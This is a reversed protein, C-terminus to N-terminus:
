LKELVANRVKVTTGEPLAGINLNPAFVTGTYDFDATFEFSFTQFETTLTVNKRTNKSGLVTWPSVGKMAAIVLIEANDSAAASFSCRYREGKRITQPATFRIVASWAKEGSELLKFEACDGKRSFELKKETWSLGASNLTWEHLPEAFLMAACTFAITGLLLKKM